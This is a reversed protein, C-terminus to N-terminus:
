KLNTRFSTVLDFGKQVIRDKDSVTAPPNSDPSDRLVNGMFQSIEQYIQEPSLVTTFGIDGLKPIECLLKVKPVKDWFAGGTMIFVPQNIIKSLKIASLSTPIESYSRNMENRLYYKLNDRYFSNSKNSEEVVKDYYPCKKNLVKYNGMPSLSVLPFEKGCFILTVFNLNPCKWTEITTNKDVNVNVYGYEGGPIPRRDYTLRPDGGGYQYSVWDYCDKFPSVIKM